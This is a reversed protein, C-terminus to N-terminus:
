NSYKPYVVHPLPAHAYLLFCRVCSPVRSDCWALKKCMPCWKGEMMGSNAGDYTWSLVLERDCFYEAGDITGRDWDLPM